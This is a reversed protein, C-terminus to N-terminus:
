KYKGTIGLSQWPNDILCHGSSKGYNRARYTANWFYNLFADGSKKNLRSIFVRESFPHLPHQPMRDISALHSPSSMVASLAGERCLCIDSGIM